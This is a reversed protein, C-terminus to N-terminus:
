RRPPEPRPRNGGVGGEEIDEDGEQEAPWDRKPKPDEDRPQAM